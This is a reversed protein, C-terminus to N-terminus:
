RSPRGRFSGIWRAIRGHPGAAWGAAGGAFAVTNYAVTDVPTWTRGGDISYGSGSPGVAVVAPGTGHAWAVGYRVGAPKAEGMVRWTRGGDSTSVVNSGSAARPHTYEGGVAVGHEADGFAVGFIGSTRGAPLPTAAALWSWGGDETRYVRARAGGGTGVWARGRSAAGGIVALATGSAAFGAEGALAPPASAPTRWSAGGDATVLLLLRGDLADGFAVARRTDWCRIGDLFIGPRTSRWQLTWSRGGDVTRYVRADPISDAFSTGALWATDADVAAVGIFFLGTAGPVTDARWSAGGDVTRTFVGGKGGAWAVRASVAVLARLEATTGSRQPLWQAAAPVAPAVATLLTLFTATKGTM